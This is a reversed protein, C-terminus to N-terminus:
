DNSRITTSNYDPEELFREVYKWRNRLTQYIQIKSEDNDVMSKMHEVEYDPNEPSFFMSLLSKNRRKNIERTQRINNLISDLANVSQQPRRISHERDIEVVNQQQQQQQQQQNVQALCFDYLVKADKYLQDSEWNCDDDQNGSMEYVNLLQELYWAATDINKDISNIGNSSSLLTRGGGSNVGEIYLSALNFYALVNHPDISISLDWFQKAMTYNPGGNVEDQRRTALRLFYCNGLNLLARSVMMQEDEWLNASLQYSKAADSWLQIARKISKEVTIVGGKGGTAFMNGLNVMCAIDKQQVGNQLCEVALEPRGNKLHYSALDNYARYVKLDLAKHLYQAAKVDDVECSYGDSDRNPRGMYLTGLLYTAHPHEYDSAMTLLDYALPKNQKIFQGGSGDGSGYYIGSTRRQLLVSAINYMANREKWLLGCEWLAFAMQQYLDSRDGQQILQAYFHNGLLTIYKMHDKQSQFQDYLTDPISQRIASHYDNFDSVTSIQDSIIIPTYDAQVIDKVIQRTQNVTFPIDEQQSAHFQNIVTEYQELADNHGEWGTIQEGNDDLKSIQSSFAQVRQYQYYLKSKLRYSAVLRHRSYKLM